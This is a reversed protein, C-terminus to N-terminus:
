KNGICSKVLHQLFSLIEKRDGKKGQFRSTGSFNDAYFQQEHVSSILVNSLAVAFKYKPNLEKIYSALLNCLLDYGQFLDKSSVSKTQKTLYVRASEALIVKHLIAENIHVSAPDDQNSETLVKLAVDLKIRPDDINVTRTVIIFHLWNWYWSVLYQLLHQKSSFYRYVSAETSKIKTALKKFTFAEFGLQNILTIGESLIKRGLETQEPDRLYLKESVKIQLYVSM